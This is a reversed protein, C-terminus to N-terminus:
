QPEQNPIPVTVSLTTGQNLQSEIRLTGNVLRTREKINVLGLGEPISARLADIGVGEDSITLCVVEATGIVQLQAHSVQAHKLVNQLAEQAIRYLCLAVSSRLREFSGESQFSITIGTVSSFEDCYSKLAAGLGSYQLVAPHLNHSLRRVGEALQVLKQQIRESQVRAEANEPAINKKLNSAAISVAAIQQSLDDHLEGALRTREEEQATILRATLAQIETEARTREKLEEALAANAGRLQQEVQKRETIDQCIGVLKIPRHDDDFTWQGQSHLMRISGDPRVIREEFDFPQGNRFALDIAAKTTSRDEPHIRTLYGEYTPEFEAPHVGFIRCLEQSRRVTKTRLDWEYSGLRAIAQAHVLQSERRQIEEEARKRETIELALGRIRLGKGASDYEARGRLAFWRLSGDPHVVRFELDAGSGWGPSDRLAREVKQRDDPHIAEVFSKLTLNEINPPWGLISNLKGRWKLLAGDVDCEWIEVNGGSLALRLREESARLAERRQHRTIAIAAVHTCIDILRLHSADPRGPARFYMAFTGLVKGEADLIPTSWGSRLGHRLAIDRYCDWLPDTAIDEVIIPERRFAATGCSGARPGIPEGDIDRIFEDPLGRAAGHRVHIGDADLLLISCLMGPCQGKIVGLLSDLIQSLPADQAILELIRNQGELFDASQWPAPATM